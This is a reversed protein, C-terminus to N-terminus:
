ATEKAEQAREILETEPDDYGMKQAWAEVAERANGVKELDEPKTGTVNALFTRPETVGMDKLTKSLSPIDITRHGNQRSMVENASAIHKTAFGLAAIARGWASTQCVMLESNKSFPTQGPLPEWALGVGPLPDDATRYARAECVIFAKDGVHAISWADGSLRGDPYTDYFQRIREAVDVYDDMFNKAM